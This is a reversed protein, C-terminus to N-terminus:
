SKLKELCKELSGLTDVGLTTVKKNTKKVLGQLVKGAGVEIFTDIGMDIMKDVSKKWLVPSQMQKVLSAKIDNLPIQDATVNSIVPINPQKFSINSLFSEFERGASEILPSHFAGSVELIVTMKAKQEKALEVAKEVGRRDGSIVLQGPCNYNAPIVLAEQSATKCIDEVVSDDLGIIAAMAGKKEPDAGAMLEGRKRVTKLAEEFSLSLAFTYATFEGLSHGACAKPFYEDGLEKVLGEKRLGKIIAVSTTLLAPQANETKQLEEKPGNFILDSLPFGLIDDARNFVEKSEPFHDYFEKGMGVSQSGQGPFILAINAM